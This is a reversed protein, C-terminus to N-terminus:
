VLLAVDNSVIAACWALNNVETFFRHRNLGAIHHHVGTNSLLVTFATKKKFYGSSKQFSFNTIGHAM